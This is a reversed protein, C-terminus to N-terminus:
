TKALKERIAEIIWASAGRPGAAAVVQADLAPPMYITRRSTPEAM